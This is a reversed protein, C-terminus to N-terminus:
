RDRGRRRRPDLGSVAVAVLGLGLALAVVMAWWGATASGREALPFRYLGGSTAAWLGGQRGIVQGPVSDGLGGGLQTWTWGGDASASVGEPTGAAYLRGAVATVAAAQGHVQGHHVHVPAPLGLDTWRGGALVQMDTTTESSAYLADGAPSLVTVASM